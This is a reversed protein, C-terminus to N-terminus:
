YPSTKEVGGPLKPMASPQQSSVAPRTDARGRRASASATLTLTPSVAASPQPDRLPRSVLVPGQASETATAPLPEVIVAAVSSSSANSSEISAVHGVAPAALRWGSIGLVVVAAGALAIKPARRDGGPKRATAYMTGPELTPAYAIEAHSRRLPTTKGQAARTLVVTAEDLSPRLTPDRALMREVLQSVDDPVDVISVLPAISGMTVNKIVQGFNDGVIPRKGALCEYLMVGLAWVDARADVTKEGFIQEPAMYHPTGILAGTHTLEPQSSITAMDLRTRKALGFDLVKVSSDGGTVLFVNEPKLDRHVVGASHVAAVAEMVPVAIAAVEALTMPGRSRLRKALSEGSLLEMVIVPSALSADSESTLIELVAVIGPHELSAAIRAERLVRAVREHGVGKLFKLAVQAGTSLERGAWVVGMGGEGIARELVYRKGIHAGAVLTPGRGLASLTQELGLAGLWASSAVPADLDSRSSARVQLLLSRCDDCSACHKDVGRLAESALRGALMELVANEDLCQM